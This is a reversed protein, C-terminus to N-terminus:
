YHPPIEDEASGRGAGEPSNPLREAIRRVALQLQELLRQQRVIETSLTELAAEQYALRTELEIVRENVPSEPM